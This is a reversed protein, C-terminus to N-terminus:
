RSPLLELDTHARTAPMSRSTSRSCAPPGPGPGGLLARRAVTRAPRSLAPGWCHTTFMITAMADHTGTQTSPQLRPVLKPRSSGNRSGATSWRSAKIITRPKVLRVPPRWPRCRPGAQFLDDDPPCRQQHVSLDDDPASDPPPLHRLLLNEHGGSSPAAYGADSHQGAPFSSMEPSM